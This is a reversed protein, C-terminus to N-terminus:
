KCAHVSSVMHHLNPCESVRIRLSLGGPASYRSTAMDGPLWLHISTPNTGEFDTKPQGKYRRIEKERHLDETCKTGTKGDGLDVNKSAKTDVKVNNITYSISVRKAIESTKNEHDGDVSNCEEIDCKVKFVSNAENDPSSQRVLM